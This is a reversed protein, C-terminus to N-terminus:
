SETVLREIDDLRDHVSRDDATEDADDADQPLDGVVFWVSKGLKTREFGWTTALRDIVQLGRGSTADDPPQDIVPLRSNDDYVDVRLTGQSTGAVVVRIDTRAHIVANAVLESTLLLADDLHPSTLEWSRVRQALFRRAVAVSTLECPLDLVDHFLM